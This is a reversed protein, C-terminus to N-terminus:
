AARLSEVAEGIQGAERQWRGLIRLAMAREADDLRLDLLADAMAKIAADHRGLQGLANALSMSLGITLPAEERLAELEQLARAPDHDILLDARLEFLALRDAPFAKAAEELLGVAAEWDGRRQLY